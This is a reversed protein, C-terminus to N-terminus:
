FPRIISINTTLNLALVEGKWDDYILQLIDNAKFTFSDGNKNEIKGNNETTRVSNNSNFIIMPITQNTIAKNNKEIIKQSCIGIAGCSEVNGDIKLKISSTRRRTLQPSIM